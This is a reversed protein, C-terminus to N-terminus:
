SAGPVAELVTGPLHGVCGGGPPDAHAACDPPEHGWEPLMDDNQAATVAMDAREVFAIRRQAIEVTSPTYGCTRQLDQTYAAEDQAADGVLDTIDLGHKNSVQIVRQNAHAKFRQIRSEDEEWIIDGEWLMERPLRPSQSTVVTWPPPEGHLPPVTPGPPPPQQPQQRQPQPQQQNQQQQQQQKQQQEQQQKAKRKEKDKEKRAETKHRRKCPSSPTKEAGTGTDTASHQDNNIQSMFKSGCVVMGPLGHSVAAGLLVHLGRRAEKRAGLGELFLLTAHANHEAAERPSWADRVM